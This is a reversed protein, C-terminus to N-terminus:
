RGSPSGAARHGRQRGGLRSVAWGRAARRQSAELHKAPPTTIRWQPLAVQLMMHRLRVSMDWPGAPQFRGRPRGASGGTRSQDTPPRVQREPVCGSLSGTPALGAHDQEAQSVHTASERAGSYLGDAHGDRAAIGSEAIGSEPRGPTHVEEALGRMDTAQIAAVPRLGPRVASTPCDRQGSPVRTPRSTETPPARGRGPGDPSGDASRPCGAAFRLLHTQAVRTGFGGLRRLGRGTRTATALKSARALMGVRM